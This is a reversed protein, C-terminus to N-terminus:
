NNTEGCYDEKRVSESASVNLAKTKQIYEDVARRVHESITGGLSVLFSVHHEYLFINVRKM